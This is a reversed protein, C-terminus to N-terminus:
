VKFIKDLKVRKRAKRVAKFLNDNLDRLWGDKKKQNSRRHRSRYVASFTNSADNFQDVAREIGRLRRSVKKRRRLEVYVVPQSAGGTRVTEVLTTRAM